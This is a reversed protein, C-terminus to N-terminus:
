AADCYIYIYLSFSLQLPHSESFLAYLTNKKKKTVKEYSHKQAGVAYIKMLSMEKM